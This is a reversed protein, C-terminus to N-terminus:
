ATVLCASSNKSAIRWREGHATSSNTSSGRLGLLSHFPPLWTVRIRRAPSKNPRPSSGATGAGPRAPRTSSSQSCAHQNVPASNNEKPKACKRPSREGCRENRAFGFVYDVDHQECWAMLEERCFGSDARLIIQTHPWAKRIQTVIRQVEELSGASADINSPRLRACLLQDGCFIYLPLYCYHNYYGHFFRAEQKGHLPTDTADVDLVISRPAKRHSELFLRVLLEDIAEPSYVIKNYREAAPSGAPTLELRNLTSKGALPEGLDRKGALVALLPDQRLQEHDNLDEYGLALGYIRQALMEELRHEIREPQRYDTFCGTVRRLLGIKRDAQRLLLSGGETTLWSGEFQAVVQRSFHAEFPFLTESCETM